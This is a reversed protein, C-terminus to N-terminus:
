HPVATEPEIPDARCAEHARSRLARRLRLPHEGAEDTLTGALGDPGAIGHFRIHGTAGEISFAIAKTGDDISVEDARMPTVLSGSAAEYVLGDGNPSRRVTSRRGALGGTAPETCLDAYVYTGSAWSSHAQVSAPLMVALALTPGLVHMM